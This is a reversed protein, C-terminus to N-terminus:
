KGHRAILATLIFDRAERDIRITLLGNRFRLRELTSIFDSPRMDGDLVPTQDLAAIMDANSRTM